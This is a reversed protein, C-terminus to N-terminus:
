PQDNPEIVSIAGNDLAKQYVADCDDIYVFMGANQVAFKETSDAVMIPSGKIAIEAHMITGKEDRFAKYREPADFVKLM